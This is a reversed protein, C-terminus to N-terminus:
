SKRHYCPKGLIRTNRIEKRNDEDRGNTTLCPFLDRAPCPAGHSSYTANEIDYVFYNYVLFYVSICLFITLVQEGLLLM